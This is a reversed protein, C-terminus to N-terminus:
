NKDKRKITKKLNELSHSLNRVIDIVNIEQKRELPKKCKPCFLPYETCGIGRPYFKYYGCKPCVMIFPIPAINNPIM